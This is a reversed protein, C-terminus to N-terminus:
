SDPLRAGDTCGSAEVELSRPGGAHFQVIYPRAISSRPSTPEAEPEVDRSAENKAVGTEVAMGDEVQDKAIAKRTVGQVINRSNYSSKFIGGLCFERM